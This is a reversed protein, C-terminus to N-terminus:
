GLLPFSKPMPKISRLSPNALEAPPIPMQIGRQDLSDAWLLKRGMNMPVTIGNVTCPVESPVESHQSTDTFVSRSSEQELIAIIDIDATNAM